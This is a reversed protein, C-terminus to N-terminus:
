VADDDPAPITATHLASERIRRNSSRPHILHKPPDLTLEQLHWSQTQRAPLRLPEPVEIL